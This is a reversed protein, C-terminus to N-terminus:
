FQVRKTYGGDVVVSTGTTYASAPSALFVITRAVEDPTGFRGLAFQTETSAYLQPMASKIAEWNGDPFSIPGPMVANVRIRKPGWAQSLQKSYTLLAAKLANYAQPV